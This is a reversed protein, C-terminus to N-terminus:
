MTKGVWWPQSSARGFPGARGSMRNSYSLKSWICKKSAQRSCGWSQLRGSNRKLRGSSLGSRPRSDCICARHSSNLGACRIASRCVGHLPRGGVGGRGERSLWSAGRCIVWMVWHPVCTVVSAFLYNFVAPFRPDLGEPFNQVSKWPPKFSVSFASFSGAKGKKAVERPGVASQLDTPPAIAEEYKTATVRNNRSALNCPFSWWADLSLALARAYSISVSQMVGRATCRWSRKLVSSSM